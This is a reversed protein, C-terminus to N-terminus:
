PKELTERQLHAVIKQLEALVNAAQADSLAAMSPPAFLALARIHVAVPEATRLGQEMMAAIVDCLSKLVSVLRDHGFTGALNLISAAQNQVAEMGKKSLLPEHTHLDSILIAELHAIEKWISTESSIRLKEVSYVARDVAKDRSIGGSKALLSGLRNPAHIIKYSKTM